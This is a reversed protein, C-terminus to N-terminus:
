SRLDSYLKRGGNKRYVLGHGTTGDPYQVSLSDGKRATVRYYASLDGDSSRYEKDKDGNTANAIGRWGASEGSGNYFFEVVGEEPAEFTVQSEPVTIATSGGVPYALSGINAVGIREPIIWNDTDTSKDYIHRTCNTFTNGLVINDRSRAELLVGIPSDRLVNGVILCRNSGYFFRDTEGATGLGKLWISALGGSCKNGIIGVAYTTELNGNSTICPVGNQPSLLNNGIILSSSGSDLSIQGAGYNNHFFNDSIIGNYSAYDLCTAECGCDCVICGSIRTFGSHLVRVGAGARANTIYCNVIENYVSKVEVSQWSDLPTTVLCIADNRANSIKLNRFSCHSCDEIQLTNGSTSEDVASTFGLDFVDVNSCEVMRFVHMHISSYLVSKNRGDGFISINDANEILLGTNLKYTGGPFYVGKSVTAAYALAAGIATSDNTTGDGKAGFDRVNIVDACREALTRSQTSQWATVSNLSVDGEPVDAVFDHLWSVAGRAEGAAAIADDRADLMDHLVDMGSKMSTEPVLVARDLNYLLEQREACDQDFRDEIEESDFRTGNRYDDEQVFPMGRRITIRKGSAPAAPFSVTGGTSTLEISCYVSQDSESEGDGVYVRVQNKKWVKFTFPFDTTSGNGIYKNVYSRSELTM